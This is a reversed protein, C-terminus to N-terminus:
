DSKFECGVVHDNHMGTAQMFAYCITPGVFNFGRQKLAKSMAESEPSQAPIESLSLPKNIITEGGVFSWLFESFDIGEEKIKLYAKANQITSEIKKRNKIIGSNKMLSLINSESMKAIKQPDFGFFARDYDDFRKLVTLWSLGAQAGELILMRFLRLSDREERGWQEDHYQIYLPDGLCWECRKLKIPDQPNSM